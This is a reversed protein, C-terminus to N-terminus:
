TFCPSLAPSGPPRLEGTSASCLLRTDVATDPPPQKQVTLSHVALAYADRLAPTCNARVKTVQVVFFEHIM